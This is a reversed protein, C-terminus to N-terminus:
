ARARERKPDYFPLNVIQAELRKMRGDLQGVEVQKGQIAYEVSIRAMAITTEFLPSYIASTIVGIQREGEFIAAGALPIDDCQFKLGVLNRRQAAQNRQLAAKGIFDEKSMDAAFGIGAEFVDVGPAFEARSALGAEIRIIELAASGMPNINFEAGAQMLADWLTLADKEACFLEYGLEGTYGTRALMFAPGERDHLRAITVGFWKLQDLSPVHPQTFVIKRLIDRSSPGQLALNPLSGALDHIRVQFHHQAALDTLWRGSEEAGCCWRFLHPALRFLTGDDIVEGSHDCLLAYMGRWEALKAINKSMAMQLLKEADPGIIDFKRLSSMDQLTAANRCSWYEGITGISPFSVAAWIDRAPAFDATLKEVRPHFASPKSIQMPGDEKNRYAVAYQISNHHHYIRVHIDTPNWGNIPDIDDPCATSVCVLDELAQMVVYDGARSYAEETRIHHHDDLWTNWFFNVAPWASRQAIGYASTASSINDSCNLHGPFGRDAYSRETCAFGFMDHRGCSDQVLRLLPRMNQDYFKDFLGPLPYARRVLSRTATSDICFEAGKDLGRTSFAQFDSCQQGAIDIIQIYEGKRVQYASATGRKITFEERVEGLADPLRQDVHTQQHWLLASSASKGSILEFAPCLHIVWIIMEAPMQIIFPESMQPIIAAKIGASHQINHRDLWSYFAENEFHEPEIEETPKLSLQHEQRLGNESFALVALKGCHSNDIRLLDGSRVPYCRAARPQVITPQPADIDQFGAWLRGNQHYGNNSFQHLVVQNYIVYGGWKYMM